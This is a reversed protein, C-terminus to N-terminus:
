RVLFPEVFERVSKINVGISVSSGPFYATTMGVLRGQTDILPGGSDGPLVQVNVVITHGEFASVRGFQIHLEKAGLLFGAAAVESGVQANEDALVIILEDKPTYRLVALDLLHNSQAVEAHRGNVTVSIMPKAPLCHAATLVYGKAIVVGSCTVPSSAGPALVEVRPVQRALPAVATPWSDSVFLMVSRFDKSPTHQERQSLDDTATTLLVFLVAAFAILFFAFIDFALKKM